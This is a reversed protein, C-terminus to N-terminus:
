DVATTKDSCRTRSVVVVSIVVQTWASMLVADFFCLRRIWKLTSAAPTSVCPWGAFFNLSAWCTGCCLICTVIHHSQHIFHCNSHHSELTTFDQRITNYVLLWHTPTGHAKLSLSRNSLNSKRTWIEDEWHYKLCCVWVVGNKFHLAIKLLM